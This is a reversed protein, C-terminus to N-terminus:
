RESQLYKGLDHEFGPFYKGIVTIDFRSLISEKPERDLLFAFAARVCGEASVKGGSLKRYTEQRMTVHHNTEGKGRQVTVDFELPDDSKTQKVLIM